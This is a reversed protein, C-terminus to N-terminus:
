KCKEPYIMVIWRFAWHWSVSWAHSPIGAAQFYYLWDKRTFARKISLLGDNFILRNPFCVPAIAGFSLSALFHRHLDNIIVAERAVSVSKQLFDIIEEDSLHHFVLTSTIVDVSKPAECLQAAPPVCFEVNSVSPSYKLQERAFAIAEQSIDIGKVHAQPYRKALEITLQGGGCGVDLISAPKNQLQNFAWFTSRDGGLLKGIRGLQVLCDRYEQPTYYSPGLDIMEPTHIRNGM